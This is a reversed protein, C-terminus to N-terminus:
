SAHVTSYQNSAVWVLKCCSQPLLTSPHSEATNHQTTRHVSGNIGCHLTRPLCASAYGRRCECHAISSLIHGSPVSPCLPLPLEKKAFSGLTGKGAKPKSAATGGWNRTTLSIPHTDTHRATSCWWDVVWFWCSYSVVPLSSM